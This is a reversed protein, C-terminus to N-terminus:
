PQYWDPNSYTLQHRVWNVYADRLPPSLRFYMNIDFPRGTIQTLTNTTRDLRYLQGDREIIDFSGTKSGPTIAEGVAIFQPQPHFVDAVFYIEGKHIFFVGNANKNWQPHKGEGVKLWIGTPIDWYMIQGGINLLISNPYTDIETGAHFQNTDKGQWDMSMITQGKHTSVKFLIRDNLKSAEPNIEAQHPSYTLRTLDTGGARIKWMDPLQGPLAFSFAIWCGDDLLKISLDQVRGQRLYPYNEFLGRKDTVYGNPDLTMLVPESTDHVSDTEIAGLIGSECLPATQSLLSGVTDPTQLHYPFKNYQQIQTSPIVSNHRGSLLVGGSTVVRLAAHALATYSIFSDLFNRTTYYIQTISEECTEWCSTLRDIFRSHYLFGQSVSLNESSSM